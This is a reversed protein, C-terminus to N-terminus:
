RLRVREWAVRAQDTTYGHRQQLERMFVYRQDPAAHVLDCSVADLPALRTDTQGGLSRDWARHARDMSIETITLSM